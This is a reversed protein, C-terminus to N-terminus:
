PRTSVEGTHLGAFAAARLPALESSTVFQQRSRTRYAAYVAIVAVAPGGIHLSDSTGRWYTDIRRGALDIRLGTADMWWWRALHGDPEISVLSHTTLLIESVSMATRNTWCPAHLRAHVVEGDQLVLPAAPQPHLNSCDSALAAYLTAADRWGRLEAAAVAASHERHRNAATRARTLNM